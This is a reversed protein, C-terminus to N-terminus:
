GGKIKASKGDGIACGGPVDVMENKCAHGSGKVVLSITKSRGTGGEGSAGVKEAPYGNAGASRGDRNEPQRRCQSEVETSGGPPM